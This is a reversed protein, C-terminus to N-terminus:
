SRPSVTSSRPAWRPPSDCIVSWRAAPFAGVNYGEGRKDDHPKYAKGLWYGRVSNENFMYGDTATKRKPDTANPVLGTYHGNLERMLVAPSKGWLALIEDYGLTLIKEMPWQEGPAKASHAKPDPVDSEAAGASGFALVM